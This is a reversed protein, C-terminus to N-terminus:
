INKKDLYGKRILRLTKRRQETVEKNKTTSHQLWKIDIKEASGYFYVGPEVGFRKFFGELGILGSNFKIVSFCVALEVTKKICSKNEPM